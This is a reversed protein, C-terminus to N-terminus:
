FRSPLRHEAEVAGPWNAVAARAYDAAEPSMHDAAEALKTLGDDAAGREPAATVALFLSNVFRRM